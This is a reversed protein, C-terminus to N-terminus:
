KINGKPLGEINFNPNQELIFERSPDVVKLTYPGVGPPPDETMSKFKAKDTPVPAADTEIGKIDETPKGAEQYDASGVIGSFFSSYPGKLTLIRQMAHEFDSAKVPSGDSYKLGERMTFEYTKGGNSVKGTDTALGPIVEGGPKGEEHRYTTLGTYVLNLAQVAQITQFLAPDYSDPGVTGVKISGGQKASGGGENGGGGGGDDSGGCAAAGLALVSAAAVAGLGRGYRM